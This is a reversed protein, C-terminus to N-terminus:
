IEEKLFSGVRMTLLLSFPLIVYFALIDDIYWKLVRFCMPESFSRQLLQFYNTKSDEPLMFETLVSFM